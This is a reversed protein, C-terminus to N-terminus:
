RTFRPLQSSISNLNRTSKRGSQTVRYIHAPLHTGLIKWTRPGHSGECKEMRLSSKEEEVELM